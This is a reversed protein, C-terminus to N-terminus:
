GAEGTAVAVQNRGARKADYLAADAAAMLDALEAQRTADSAVGFSMTIGMDVDQAVADRIAEAVSAASGTDHGPLLVLFEDGGLRYALEFRRLQERLTYAVSKLLADGRQHGHSDNVLKFQDIDMMVIAISTTGPLVSAQQQLERFRQGLTRRNLLGTLQDLAANESEELESSAMTSAIIAVSWIGVAASAVLLPAARVGSWHLLFTPALETVVAAATLQHARRPGLRVYFQLHAGPLLLLLFSRPGGTTAIALGMSLTIVLNGAVLFRPQEEWTRQGIAVLIAVLVVTGIVILLPRVGWSPVAAVFLAMFPLVALRLVRRENKGGKYFRLNELELQDLRLHEVVNSEDPSLQM